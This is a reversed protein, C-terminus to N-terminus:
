FCGLQCDRLKIGLENCARGVVAPEAGLERGIALAQSCSLRRAAGAAEQLAAHLTSLDDPTM